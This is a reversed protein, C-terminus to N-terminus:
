SRTSRAILFGIGIGVLLAPIPNRRILNTLDEAIGGLGEQQLHRGGSELTDAVASSARGMMGERPMNERVTGALSKMGSAVASTAEQAKHGINSAMDQAGQAMSGGVERAKEAVNSAIEKAKETKGSVGEHGTTKSESGTQRPEGFNRAPTTPSAM